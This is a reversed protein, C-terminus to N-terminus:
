DLNVVIDVFAEKKNKIKLGVNLEFYCSNEAFFVGIYSM